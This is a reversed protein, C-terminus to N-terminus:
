SAEGTELKYLVKLPWYGTGMAVPSCDVRVGESYDVSKVFLLAACSKHGSFSVSVSSTGFMDRTEVIWEFSIGGKFTYARRVCNVDSSEIEKFYCGRNLYVFKGPSIFQKIWSKNWSSSDLHVPDAAKAILDVFDSYLNHVRHDNGFDFRDYITSRLYTDSPSQPLEPVIVGAEDVLGRNLCSSFSAQDVESILEPTLLDAVRRHNIYGWSVGVGLFEGALQRQYSITAINKRQAIVEREWRKKIDRLRDASLSVTLNRVTHAEGHHEQCLAILNEKSNNSNNQDIHHLQITRKQCIACAYASAYCVERQLASPIKPRTSKITM